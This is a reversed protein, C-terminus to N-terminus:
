EWVCNPSLACKKLIKPKSIPLIFVFHSPRNKRFFDLSVFDGFKQTAHLQQVFKLNEFRWLQGGFPALSDFIGDSDFVVNFQIRLKKKPFVRGEWKTKMKGINKKSLFCNTLKHNRHLKYFIKPPINSLLCIFKFKMKMFNENGLAFKCM